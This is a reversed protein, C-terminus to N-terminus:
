GEIERDRVPPAPCCHRCCGSARLLEGIAEALEEGCSHSLSDARQSTKPHRVWESYFCRYLFQKAHSVSAQLHSVTTPSM